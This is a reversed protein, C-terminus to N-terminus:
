FLDVKEEAYIENWTTLRTSEPLPMMKIENTGINLCSFPLKNSDVAMWQEAIEHNNPDGSTAFSAFTETMVKIMEMEKSEIAPSIIKTDPGTKFIYPLEDCHSAGPYKEYEDEGVHMKKVFNQSTDVDFRYFFNKGSGGHTLRSQLVRQIPHWFYLDSIFQFSTLKHFKM